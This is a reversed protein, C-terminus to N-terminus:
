CESLNLFEKGAHLNCVSFSKFANGAKFVDFCILSMM